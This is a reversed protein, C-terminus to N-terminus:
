AGVEHGGVVVDKSTRREEGRNDLPLSTKTFPEFGDNRLSEWRMYESGEQRRVGYLTRDGTGM